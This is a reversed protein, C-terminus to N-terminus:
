PRQPMTFFTHNSATSPMPALWPAYPTISRGDCITTCNKFIPWTRPWIQLMTIPAAFANCRPMYPRMGRRNSPLTSWPPLCRGLSSPTHRKVPSSEEPTHIKGQGSHACTTPATAGERCCSSPTILSSTTGISPPRWWGAEWDQSPTCISHRWDKSTATGTMEPYSGPNKWSKLPQRAHVTTSTPLHCGWTLNTCRQREHHDSSTQNQSPPWTCRPTESSSYNIWM